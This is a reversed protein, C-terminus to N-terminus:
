ERRALARVTKRERQSTKASLGTAGVRIKHPWDCITQKDEVSLRASWHVLTYSAPPMSGGEVADCIEQIQNRSLNQRATWDSFNLKERGQAVHREILWSAPPFKSYWPWTTKNSHCDVCSRQLVARVDPTVAKNAPIGNVIRHAASEPTDADTLRVGAVLGVCLGALWVFKNAM